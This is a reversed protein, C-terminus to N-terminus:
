HLLGTVFICPTSQLQPYGLLQVGVPLAISRHREKILINVVGRPDGSWKERTLTKILFTSLGELIGRGEERTLTTPMSLIFDAQVPPLM